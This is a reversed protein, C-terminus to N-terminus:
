LSSTHLDGGSVGRGAHPARRRRSPVVQRRCAWPLLQALRLQVSLLSCLYHSCCALARGRLTCAALQPHINALAMHCNQSSACCSARPRTMEASARPPQMCFRACQCPLCSSWILPWCICDHMMQCSSGPSPQPRLACCGQTKLSPCSPMVDTKTVM